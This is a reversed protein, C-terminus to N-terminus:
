IKNQLPIIDGWFLSLTWYRTPEKFSKFSLIIGWKSLNGKSELFCASKIKNLFIIFSILLLSCKVNSPKCLIILMLPDKFKPKLSSIFVFKGLILLISLGKTGSGKKFSISGFQIDPNVLPSPDKWTLILFEFFYM